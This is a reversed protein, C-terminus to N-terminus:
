PSYFSWGQVYVGTGGWVAGPGVQVRAWLRPNSACSTSGPTSSICARLDSVRTSGIRAFYSGAITSAFYLCPGAPCAGVIPSSAIAGGPGFKAAKFMQTGGMPIEVDYVQGDNAGFYWDGAADAMPTTNIAPRGDPQGDYTYAVAALGSTYLYLLGNTGGV